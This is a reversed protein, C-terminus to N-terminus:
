REPRDSRMSVAPCLRANGHAGAWRVSLRILMPAHKRAQSSGDGHEHRGGAEHSESEAQGVSGSEASKCEAHQGDELSQM